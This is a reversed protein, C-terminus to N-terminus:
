KPKTVSTQSYADAVLAPKIDATRLRDVLAIDIGEAPWRARTEEDVEIRVVRRKDAAFCAVPAAPLGEIWVPLWLAPAALRLELFCGNFLEDGDLLWDESYRVLKHISSSRAEERVAEAWPDVSTWSPHLIVKATRPPMESRSRDDTSTM